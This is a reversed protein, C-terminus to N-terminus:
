IELLMGEVVEPLTTTELIEFLAATLREFNGTRMGEQICSSILLREEMSIANNQSLVQTQQLFYMGLKKNNGNNM